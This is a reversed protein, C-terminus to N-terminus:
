KAPPLNVPELCSGDPPSEKNKEWWKMANAARGKRERLSQETTVGFDQGTIAQIAFNARQAVYAEKDELAQILVPVGYWAKLEGLGSASSRRVMVNPDQTLAQAFAPIAAREKRRILEVAAAFRTGEDKGELLDKVLRTVEPGPGAPEPAKPAEPAPGEPPRVSPDPGSPAPGRAVPDSPRSALGKVMEQLGGVLGELKAVRQSLDNDATGLRSRMEALEERVALLDESVRSQMLDLAEQHGAKADEAREAGATELATLRQDVWARLSEMEGASVAQVNSPPAASARRSKLYEAGFFGTTGFAVVLLSVLVWTGAGSSAPAPPLASPARAGAVRCNPCVVRTGDVLARGAVIQAQPVLASCVGCRRTEATDESKAAPAGGAMEAEVAKRRREREATDGASCPACLLSGFERKARGSEVDGVPVSVKCNACFLLEFAEGGTAPRAAARHESCVYRNEGATAVGSQVEALPISIGCQSCFHLEMSAGPRGRFPFTTAGAAGSAGGLIDRDASRM